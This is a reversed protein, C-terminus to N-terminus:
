QCLLKGHENWETNTEYHIQKPSLNDQWRSSLPRARKISKWFAVPRFTEVTRIWLWKWDSLLTYSDQCQNRRTSSLRWLQWGHYRNPSPEDIKSALYGLFMFSPERCEASWLDWSPLFVVVFLVDKWKSAEHKLVGQKWGGVHDFVLDSPIFWDGLHIGSARNWMIFVLFVLIYRLFLCFVVFPNKPNNSDYQISFPRSQHSSQSNRATQPDLLEFCKKHGQSWEAGKPCTDTTFREPLSSAQFSFSHILWWHNPLFNPIQINRRRQPSLQGAVRFDSLRFTQLNRLKQTQRVRNNPSARWNLGHGHFSNTLGCIKKPLARYTVSQPLINNPLRLKTHVNPSKLQM